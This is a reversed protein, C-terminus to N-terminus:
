IERAVYHLTGNGVNLLAGDDAVGISQNAPHTAARNAKASQEAKQGYQEGEERQNLGRGEWAPRGICANINWNGSSPRSARAIAIGSIEPPMLRAIMAVALRDPSSIAHIRVATIGGSAAPACSAQQSSTARTEPKAKHTITPSSVPRSTAAM